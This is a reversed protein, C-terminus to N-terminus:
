LYDDPDIFNVQSRQIGVNTAQSGENVRKEHIDDIGLLDQIMFTQLTFKKEIDFQNCAFHMEWLNVM